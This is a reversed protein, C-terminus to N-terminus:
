IQCIATKSQKQLTPCTPAAAGPVIIFPIEAGGVAIPIYGIVEVVIDPKPKEGSARNRTESKQSRHEPYQKESILWSSLRFFTDM